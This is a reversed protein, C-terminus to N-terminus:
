TSQAFMDLVSTEGWRMEDEAHPLQLVLCPSPQAPTQEVSCCRWVHDPANVCTTIICGSNVLFDLQPLPTNLPTSIARTSNFLLKTLESPIKTKRWTRYQPASAIHQVRNERSQRPSSPWDNDNYQVMIQLYEGWSILRRNGSSFWAWAM